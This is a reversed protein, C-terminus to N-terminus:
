DFRTATVEEEEERKERRAERKEADGRALAYVNFPGAPAVGAGDLASTKGHSGGPREAARGRREQKEAHQGPRQGRLLPRRCGGLHGRLERGGSRSQGDLGIRRRRLRHGPQDRGRPVQVDRHRHRAGVPPVEDLLLALPQRRGRHERFGVQLKRPELNIRGGVADPGQGGPTARPELQNIGSGPLLGRDSHRRPGGHASGGPRRIAALQRENGIKFGVRVDVHGVDGGPAGPLNGAGRQQRRQHRGELPGGVVPMQHDHQEGGVAPGSGHRRRDRGARLHLEPGVPLLRRLPHVGAQHFPRMLKRLHLIVGGSLQGHDVGLATRYAQDAGRRHDAAHTDGGIALVEPDGRHLRREGVHHRPRLEADLFFEPVGVPRHQGLQLVPRQALCGVGGRTTTRTSALLGLARVGAATQGPHRLSGAHVVQLRRRRCAAGVSGVGGGSTTGCRTALAAGCAGVTQDVPHRGKAVGVGGGDIAAVPRHGARDEAVVGAGEEHGGVAAASALDKGDAEVLRLRLEGDQALPGPHGGEGADTAAASEAAPATALRAGIVGQGEVAVRAAEHGPGARIAARHRQDGPVPCDVEGARAVMGLPLGLRRAGEHVPHHDAATLLGPDELARRPHHLRDGRDEIVIELPGQHGPFRGALNGVGPEAVQGRALQGPQGAIHVRGRLEGLEAALPDPDGAGIANTKQRADGQRRVIALARTQRAHEPEVRILEGVLGAVVPPQAGLVHVAERGGTGAGDLEHRHLPVHHCVEIRRDDTLLAPHIVVVDGVQTHVQERDNVLKVAAAPNVALPQAETAVAVAREAGRVRHDRHGGEPGTDGPGPHVVPGQGRVTELAFPTVEPAPLAGVQVEGGHQVHVLKLAGQEQIVAHVVLIDAGIGDARHAHHLRQARVPLGGREVHVRVFVVPGGGLLAQQVEPGSPGGPQVDVHLVM